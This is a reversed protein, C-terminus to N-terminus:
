DLARRTNNLLLTIKKQLKDLKRRLIKQIVVTAFIGTINYVYLFLTLLTGTLRKRKIIQERWEGIRVEAIYQLWTHITRKKYYLEAEQSNPYQQILAQQIILDRREIKDPHTIKEQLFTQSASGYRQRYIATISSFTGIPGAHHAFTGWAVNDEFMKINEPFHLHKVAIERKLVTSSSLPIAGFELFWSSQYFCCEDPTRHSLDTDNINEAYEVKTAYWHYQPYREFFARAKELHFPLWVDDSDLFALYTGRAEKIGRNRARSVGGNEQSIVRLRPDTEQALIELLNDPSGDNIVIIEYDRETQQYVSRLTQQIYQACNYSPIIVSFFPATM